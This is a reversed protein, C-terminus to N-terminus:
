AGASDSDTYSPNRRQHYEQWGRPPENANSPVLILILLLLGLILHNQYAPPPPTPVLLFAGGIMWLAPIVTAIHLHKLRQNFSLIALIGIVAASAFDHMWLYLGDGHGFIFPSMALWCAVSIQLVRGWM